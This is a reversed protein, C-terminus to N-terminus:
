LSSLLAHLFFIKGGNVTHSQGNDVKFTFNFKGLTLLRDVPM